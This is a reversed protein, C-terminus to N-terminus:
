PFLPNAEVIKQKILNIYSDDNYEIKRYIAWCVFDVVQLCKEEHPIKIEVNIDLGHNARTQNKIYNCFNQNLFKNTERKSAVLKIPQDIPILEKTYIRDLLVNVIYNYLAHKQYHLKTYVKRKNLYIYIISIEKEGLLKLVLRRTKPKEKYCHLVGHHNRTEKKSFNSFIKKMIKDIPKKDAAFLFAVVFYKSTKGKSFDFGLNGSEDLFIYAM